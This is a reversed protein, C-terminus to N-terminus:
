NTKLSLTQTNNNGLDTVQVSAPMISGVKYRNDVIGGSRGEFIDEGHLFYARISKDETQGYGLYKLDIAPPEPALPVQPPVVVPEDNRASKLPTEIEPQASEASFINRGAGEYEVRESLALKGFHLAPDLRAISLKRAQPAASTSTGRGQTSTRLAVVPRVAVPHASATPAAFYGHLEYGGICVILFSLAALLYAQRKSEAKIPMAM